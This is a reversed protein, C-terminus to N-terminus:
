RDTGQEDGGRARRRGRCAQRRASSAAVCRRRRGRAVTRRGDRDGPRRRRAFRAVANVIASGVVVGDAAGGIARAQAATKVGFGVAVPLITHRKIRTVAEAVRAPDPSATGTIGPISVYYVFGSTNALM